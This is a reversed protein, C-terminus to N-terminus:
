RFLEQHRCINRAEAVMRDSRHRRSWRQHPIMRAIRSRRQSGKREPPHQELLQAPRAFGGVAKTSTRAARV